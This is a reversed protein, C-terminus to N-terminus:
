CKVITYNFLVNSDLCYKKWGGGEHLVTIVSHGYINRETDLVRVTNPHELQIKALVGDMTFWQNGMAIGGVMGLGVIITFCIIVVILM